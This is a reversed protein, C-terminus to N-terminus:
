SKNKIKKKILLIRSDYRLMYGTFLNIKYKNYIKEAENLSQSNFALPKEILINANNKAIKKLTSVHLSTPNCIIFLDIKHKKLDKYSYIQHSYLKM